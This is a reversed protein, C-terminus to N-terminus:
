HPFIKSKIELAINCVPAFVGTIIIIPIALICIAWLIQGPFGFLEGTHIYKKIKLYSNISSFTSEDLYEVFKGSYQDVCVRHWGQTYLDDSESLNFVFAGSVNNPIKVKRISYNPYENKVIGIAQLHSISESKPQLILSKPPKPIRKSFTVKYLITSVTQPFAMTLGTVTVILILVSVGIGFNNHWSLIDNKRVWRKLSGKRLPFWLIIGVITTILLLLAFTGVIFKGKKGIFFRCHIDELFHTISQTKLSSKIKGSYPDVYVRFNRHKKGDQERLDLIWPDANSVQFVIQVVVANPYEKFVSALVAQAPLLEKTKENTISETYQLRDIQPSFALFAGTISIILLPISLTLGLWLHIKLWSKRSIKIM